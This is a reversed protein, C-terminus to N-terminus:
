AYKFKKKQLFQAASLPSKSGLLILGSRHFLVIQICCTNVSLRSKTAFTNATQRLNTILMQAGPPISINNLSGQILYEM